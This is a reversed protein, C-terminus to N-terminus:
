TADLIGLKEEIRKKVEEWPRASSPNELYAQWREELLKETEPDEPLDLESGVADEWLERALIAKQHTTLGELGPITEIIM